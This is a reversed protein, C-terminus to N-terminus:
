KVKTKLEYKYEKNVVLRYGSSYIKLVNSIGAAQLSFEADEQLDETSIKEIIRNLNDTYILCESKKRCKRKITDISEEYVIISYRLITKRARTKEDDNETIFVEKYKKMNMNGKIKLTRILEKLESCEGNIHAIKSYAHESLAKGTIKKSELYEIQKNKELLECELNYIKLDTIYKNM